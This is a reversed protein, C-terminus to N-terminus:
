LTSIIQVILHSNVQYSSLLVEYKLNVEDLIKLLANEFDLLSAGKPIILNLENENHVDNSIYNEEAICYVTVRFPSDDLKSLLDAVFHRVSKRLEYLQDDNHQMTELGERVEFPRSGKKGYSTNCTIEYKM